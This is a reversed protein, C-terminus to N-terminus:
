TVIKLTGGDIYIDGASLGSASTPLGVVSLKSGPSSTGIGVNGSSDIRLRESAATKIAFYQSSNGVEIEADVVAGLDVFEIGTTGSIDFDTIRIKAAQGRVELLQSPSSTGIGVRDTSADVFLTDTDVTLDGSFTGTTGSIAAPTSGGIVTGDITGGNIDATTATLDTFVGTSPTVSGIPGPETLDGRLDETSFGIGDKSNFTVVGTGSDYSGGTFGDGKPGRGASVALTAYTSGDSVSIANPSGETSITVTYMAM